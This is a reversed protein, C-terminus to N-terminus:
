ECSRGFAWRIQGQRPWSSMIEIFNGSRVKFVAERDMGYLCRSFEPAFRNSGNAIAVNIARNANMAHPESGTTDDGAEVVAGVTASAVAVTIRIVTVTGGSAGFGVGVGSGAM